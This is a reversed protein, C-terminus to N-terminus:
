ALFYGMLLDALDHLKFIQNYGITYLFSYICTSGTYQNFLNRLSLYTIVFFVVYISYGNKMQVYFICPIYMKMM